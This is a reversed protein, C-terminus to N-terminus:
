FIGGCGGRESLVHIGQHRKQIGRKEGTEGALVPATLPHFRETRPQIQQIRPQLSQLAEPRLNLVQFGHM